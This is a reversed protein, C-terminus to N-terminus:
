CPHPLVCRSVTDVDALAKIDVAALQAYEHDMRCISHCVYMVNDCMGPPTYLKCPHADKM